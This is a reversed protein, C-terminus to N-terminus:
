GGDEEPVRQCAHIPPWPLKSVKRHRGHMDQGQRSLVERHPMRPSRHIGGQASLVVPMALAAPMGLITPMELAVADRTCCAETHGRRSCRTQDRRRSPRASNRRVLLRLGSKQLSSSTAEGLVPFTVSSEEIEEKSYCTRFDATRGLWRVTAPPKVRNEAGLEERLKEM